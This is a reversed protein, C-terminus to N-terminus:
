QNREMFLSVWAPGYILTALMVGALFGVFAVSGAKFVLLWPHERWDSLLRDIYM